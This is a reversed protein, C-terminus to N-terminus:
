LAAYVAQGFQRTAAAAQDDVHPGPRGEPGARAHAMAAPVHPDCRGEPRRAVLHRFSRALRLHGHRWARVARGRQSGYRGVLRPRLRTRDLLSDRVVSAPASCPHAQQHAAGPDVRPCSACGTPRAAAWCRAHSPSTTTRPAPWLAAAAACRPHQPPCRPSTVATPQWSRTTMAWATCAHWAHRRTSPFSSIPTM